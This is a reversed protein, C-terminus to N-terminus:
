KKSHRARPTRMASLPGIADVIARSRAMATVIQGDSFGRERYYAVRKQFLSRSWRKADVLANGDIEEEQM